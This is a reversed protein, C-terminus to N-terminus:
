RFFSGAAVERGRHDACLDSVARRHWLRTTRRPSGRVRSYMASRHGAVLTATSSRQERLAQDHRPPMEMPWPRCSSPEGLRWNADDDDRSHRCRRKRPRWTPKPLLPTPSRSRGPGRCCPTAAAVESSRDEAGGLQRRGKRMASRRSRSSSAHARGLIQAVVARAADRRQEVPAELKLERRARANPRRSGPSRAQEDIIKRKLPARRRRPLRRCDADYRM